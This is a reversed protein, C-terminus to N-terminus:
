VTADGTESGAARTSAPLGQEFLTSTPLTEVPIAEISPVLEAWQQEMQKNYEVQLQVYDLVIKRMDEAKARKFRGVEGFLRGTVLKLLEAAKAEDAEATELATQAAPVKPEATPGGDKLRALSGAKANKEAVANFYAKRVVNRKAVAEAVADLLDVYDNIPEEFWRQEKEVHEAAVLSLQDAAHGMQSLAGQLDKAGENQGLMTFALGFDFLGKSHEKGRKILAATHTAVNQMQTKINVVYTSIEDTVLDGPSKIKELPSAAVAMASAVSLASSFMGGTSAAAKQSSKAQALRQDDASIFMTFTSHGRIFPHEACRGMFRELARRRSEIFEPSFSNLVQKGPLPPVIVGPLEAMLVGRMWEFDSYRRIVSFQKADFGPLSTETNVKYSIFSKVVGQDNKIPDSVNIALTGMVEPASEDYDEGAKHMDSVIADM